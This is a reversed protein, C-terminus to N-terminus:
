PTGEMPILLSVAYSPRLGYCLVLNTTQALKLANGFGKPSGTGRFTIGSTNYLDCPLTTTDLHHESADCGGLICHVEYLILTIPNIDNKYRRSGYRPYGHISPHHKQIPALNVNNQAWPHPPGRASGGELSPGNEASKMVMNVVDFM